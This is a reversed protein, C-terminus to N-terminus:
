RRDLIGERGAAGISEACPKRCHSRKRGSRFAVQCGAHNSRLGASLLRARPCIGRDRRRHHDERERRPRRHRDALRPSHAHNKAAESKIPSYDASPRGNNSKPRNPLRRREAEHGVRMLDLNDRELAIMEPTTFSTQAAPQSTSVPWSSAESSPESRNEDRVENLDARGMAHQLAAAELARRDIVAERETTHAVAFRVANEVEVRSAHSLRQTSDSSISETTRPSQSAMGRSARRRRPSRELAQESSRYKTGSRSRQARPARAGARHGPPPPLVGDGARAYLGSTGVKWRSRDGRDRLRPKTSRAGIRVSLGRNRLEALSLDRGSRTRALRRGSPLTMNAIVVHTHLHPDPGYGDNTGQRPGHRSM